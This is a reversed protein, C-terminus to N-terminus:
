DVAVRRLPLVGRLSYGPYTVLRESPAAGTISSSQPICLLGESGDTGPWIEGSFTVCSLTRDISWISRNWM